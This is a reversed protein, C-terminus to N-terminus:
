YRDTVDTEENGAFIEADSKINEKENEEAESFMGIANVNGREEGSMYSDIRQFINERIKLLDDAFEYASESDSDLYEIPTTFNFAKERFTKCTANIQVSDGKKGYKFHVSTVNFTAFLEADIDSVKKCKSIDIYDALIAAHVALKQLATKLKKHVPAKFVDEMEKPLKGNKETASLKLFDTEKEISVYHITLHRDIKEALEDTTLKKPQGNSPKLAKAEAIHDEITKKKKPTKAKLEKLKDTKGSTPKAAKKKPPM